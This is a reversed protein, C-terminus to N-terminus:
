IAHQWAQLVCVCVCVCVRARVRACVRARVCVRAGIAHSVPGARQAWVACSLQMVPPVRLTHRPEARCVSLRVSTSCGRHKGPLSASVIRRFAKVHSEPTGLCRPGFALAPQLRSRVVKSVKGGKAKLLALGQRVDCSPRWGRLKSAAAQRVVPGM